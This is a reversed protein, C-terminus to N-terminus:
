IDLNLRLDSQITDISMSIGTIENLHVGFKSKTYYYFLLFETSSMQNIIIDLYFSSSRNNKRSFEILSYLFRYYHSIQFRPDNLFIEYSNDLIEQPTERATSKTNNVISDLEALFMNFCIRGYHYTGHNVIFLQSVITSNFELMKFFTNEYSQFEQESSQKELASASRRLEDRTLQLEDNQLKITYLLSIFALFSLIPNLTGGIFDGWTGNERM